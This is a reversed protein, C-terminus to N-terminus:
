LVVNSDGVYQELLDKFFLTTVGYDPQGTVDLSQPFGLAAQRLKTLAHNKSEAEKTPSRCLWAGSFHGHPAM